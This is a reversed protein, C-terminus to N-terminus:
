KRWSLISFTEKKFLLKLKDWSFALSSVPPKRKNEAGNEEPEIRLNGKCRHILRVFPNQFDGYEGRVSLGKKAMKREYHLIQILKRHKEQDTPLWTKSSKFALTTNQASRWKYCGGEDKNVSPKFTQRASIEVQKETHFKKHQVLVDSIFSLLHGQTAFPNAAPLVSLANGGEGESNLSSKGTPSVKFTIEEPLLACIVRLKIGKRADEGAKFPTFM